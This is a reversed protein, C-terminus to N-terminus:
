KDEEDKYESVKKALDDDEIPKLLRDMEEHLVEDESPKGDDKIKLHLFRYIIWAVLAILAAAGFIILLIFGSNMTANIM